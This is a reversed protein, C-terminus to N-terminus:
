APHPVDIGWDLERTLARERLGEDLYRRTMALVNKRWEPHLDVLKRLPEELESLTLSLHHTERFVPFQGCLSCKPDLLQEPELIHGCNDCQDGRAPQGCDPCRGKVYRDVLFQGCTECYAKFVSTEKIHKSKYLTKHFDRVFAKHEESSTKGYRDYTFGLQEFARVFEQHYHDSIEQPTRQEQRARLTVPTGHCDSGSVYHVDDGVARHYRALIDGPLLAALHGIHLSGNAYPWAGGILIHM